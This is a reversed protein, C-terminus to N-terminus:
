EARDRSARILAGIGEAGLGIWECFEDRPLANLWQNFEDERMSLIGDGLECIRSKLRTMAAGDATTGTGAAEQTAPEIKEKAGRLRFGKIGKM